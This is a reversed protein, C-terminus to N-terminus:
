RNQSFGMSYFEQHLFYKFGSWGIKADNNSHLYADWWALTHNTLKLRAFNVRDESDYGYLTFYTEQQDIWTDLKKANVANDFSPIDIKAEVKFPM